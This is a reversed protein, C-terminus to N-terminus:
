DKDDIKFNMLKKKPKFTEVKNKRKQILKGNEELKKHFVKPRPIGKRRSKKLKNPFKRKKQFIRELKKVHQMIKGDFEDKHVSKSHIKLSKKQQLFVFNKNSINV